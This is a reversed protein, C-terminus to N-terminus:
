MLSGSKIVFTSREDAWSPSSLTACRDIKTRSGLLRAQAGEGRVAALLYLGLRDVWLLEAGELREMGAGTAFGAIRLVDEVRAQNLEVVLGAADERLADPEAAQWACRDQQKSELFCLCLPGILM